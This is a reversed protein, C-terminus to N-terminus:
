LVCLIRFVLPKRVSIPIFGKYLAGPGETRVISTFADVVGSYEHTSGASNMLRTKIVDAPTSTCASAIGAVGSASLHAVPNDGVVAAIMEKAQDYTGLEAANVLFTRAINPKLGAWFGLIGESQYIRSFVNFMSPTTGSSTQMQTKLVETWNFVSISLAGATGGALLRQMFTPNNVNGSRTSTLSVINDRVPEYLVLSLSSYCCQRILAPSLGKWLAPYGENTATKRLCDIMGTYVVGKSGGQVQVQLRVKAVDTPLTLTEAVGSSVLSAGFRGWHDESM